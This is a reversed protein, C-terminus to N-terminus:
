WTEWNNFEADIHVYNILNRKTCFEEAIRLGDKQASTKELKLRVWGRSEDTNYSGGDEEFIGKYGKCRIFASFQKSPNEKLWYFYKLTKHTRFEEGFPIKGLYYPDFVVVRGDNREWERVGLSNVLEGENNNYMFNNYEASTVSDCKDDLIEKFIGKAKEYETWKGKKLFAVENDLCKVTIENIEQDSNTYYKTDFDLYSTSVDEKWGNVNIWSNTSYKKWNNRELLSIIEPDNEKQDCIMKVLSKEDRNKPKIWKESDWDYKKKSHCAVLFTNFEGEKQVEAKFTIADFSAFHDFNIGISNLNLYYNGHPIWYPFSELTKFGRIRRNKIDLVASKVSNFDGNDILKNFDDIEDEPLNDTAWGMLENYQKEGGVLSYIDKVSWSTESISDSNQDEYTYLNENSVYQAIGLLGGLFSLGIVFLLPKNFKKEKNELIKKKEDNNALVENSKGNFENKQVQSKVPKQKLNSSLKGFFSEQKEYLSKNSISVEKEETKIEKKVREKAVPVEIKWGCNTCFKKNIDVKKGCSKCYM